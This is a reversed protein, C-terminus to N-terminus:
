SPQDCGPDHGDTRRSVPCPASSDHCASPNPCPCPCSVVLGLGPEKGRAPILVIMSPYGSQDVPILKLWMAQYISWMVSRPYTRELWPVSRRYSATGLPSQGVRSRDSTGVTSHPRKGNRAHQKPLARLGLNAVHGLRPRAGNPVLRRAVCAPDGSKVGPESARIVLCRTVQGSPERLHNGM